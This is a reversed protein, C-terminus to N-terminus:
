IIQSSPKSYKDPTTNMKKRKKDIKDQFKYQNQNPCFDFKRLIM